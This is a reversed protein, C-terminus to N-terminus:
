KIEWQAASALYELHGRHVIDFCGNSFVIKEDKFRWTQLRNFADEKKFIIKDKILQLKNM